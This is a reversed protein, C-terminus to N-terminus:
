NPNKLLIFVYFMLISFFLPKKSMHIKHLIFRFYRKISKFLKYFWGRKKIGTFDAVINTFSHYDPNLQNRNLTICFPKPFKSGEYNAKLLDWIVVKRKAIHHSLREIDSIHAITLPKIDMNPFKEKKILEDFKLQFMMPFFPTSFVIENVVLLPFVQIRKKGEINGEFLAPNDRLQKLSDVLQFLGFNKYLTNEKAGFLSSATGELQKSYIGTSKFQGLLVNSNEHIYLDALEFENGNIKVKLDDLCKISPYKLFHFADKLIEATHNEFFYGIKSRYERIDIGASKVKEFWFDNLLLEYLKEILFSNDLILYWDNIDKYIPSKKIEILDFNHAKKAVGRQSLHNFFAIAQKQYADTPDLKHRYKVREKEAKHLFIASFSHKIFDAPVLGVKKFYDNLLPSLLEDMSIFKFLNIFRMFNLAPDVVIMHENLFISGAGLKEFATHTNDNNQNYYDTVIDNVCLYYSLLNMWSDPTWQFESDEEDQRNEIIEVMCFLNAPRNFVIPHGGGDRKNLEEQKLVLMEMLPNAIDQHGGCFYVLEKKQFNLDYKFEKEVAPKMIYNLGALEHLLNRKPIKSILDLRNGSFKKGSFFDYGLILSAKPLEM